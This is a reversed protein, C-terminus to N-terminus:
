RHVEKLFDLLARNWADPSELQLLHGTNPLMVLRARKMRQTGRTAVEITSGGHLAQNPILKDDSGFVVLVPVDIEPLRDYVPGKLMARISRANAYCYDDFEPGDIIAIRDTYLFLGERPVDGAFNNAVNAYLAEPGTAKLFEKSVIETMWAGEGAEFTEFGAPAALVLAAAKRPHRLAHTMAIQGGMSHGVVVVHRLALKDIVRDVVHAFLEMSYYYNAKSSRGYGPLDIAVVRHHKAVEDFTGRWVRMNSGLGHVLLVAPEGRGAEAVAISMGDIDVTRVPLEYELDAFRRGVHVTACGTGAVTAVLALAGALLLVVLWHSRPEEM